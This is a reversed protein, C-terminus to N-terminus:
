AKLAYAVIEEQDKTKARALYGTGDPTRRRAAVISSQGEAQVDFFGGVGMPNIGVMQPHRQVGALLGGEWGQAEEKTWPLPNYSPMALIRVGQKAHQDILEHQFGDLCILVGLKGAPTFVAPLECPAPCLNLGVERELDVLNIKRQVLVREGAPNYVYTTNYVCENQAIPASGAVIWARATRAAEAFVEHYTREIFPSLTRLLARVAAPFGGELTLPNIRYREMLRLGAEVMTKSTQIREFDQTFVLGLGVDEPFVVILEGVPATNRVERVLGLIRERFAEASRYDVLRYGMQVAILTVRAM